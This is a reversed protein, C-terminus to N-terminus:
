CITKQEVVRQGLKGCRLELWFTSHFGNKRFSSADSLLSYDYVRGALVSQAPGCLWPQARFAFVAPLHWDRMYDPQHMDAIPQCPQRPVPDQQYPDCPHDVNAHSHIGRVLWDSIASCASRYQRRFRLVHSFIDSLRIDLQC